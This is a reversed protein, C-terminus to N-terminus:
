VPVRQDELTDGVANGDTDEEEYNPDVPQELPMLNAEPDRTGRPPLKHYETISLYEVLERFHHEPDDEIWEIINDIKDRYEKVRPAQSHLLDVNHRSWKFHPGGEGEIIEVDGYSSDMQVTGTESCAWDAFHGIGEYKTGDTM